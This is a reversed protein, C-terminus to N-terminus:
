RRKQLARSGFYFSFVGALLCRDEETWLAQYIFVPVSDPLAYITVIKLMAYLGFMGYAINPRVTAALSEVWKSGPRDTSHLVKIEQFDAKTQIEALRAESTTKEREVQIQLIQIEHKHDQHNRYIKVLEPFLSGILGLLSGLLTIM